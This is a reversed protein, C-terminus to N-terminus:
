IVNCGPRLGPDIRSKFLGNLINVRTGPSCTERAGADMETPKLRKLKLQVGWPDADLM